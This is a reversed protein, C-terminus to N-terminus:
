QSVGQADMRRNASVNPIWPGIPRSITHRHWSCAVNTPCFRKRSDTKHKVFMHKKKEKLRLYMQRINKFYM